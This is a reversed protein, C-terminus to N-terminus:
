LGLLQDLVRRSPRARRRLRLIEPLELTVRALGRSGAVPYRPLRMLEGVVVRAAADPPLCKLAFRLLNHRTSASRRSREADGTAAGVRHRLSAAPVFITEWGRLWARWCVDLDEWEMFFAEDFGGLELHRDRRVLMAAGNACVTSATQEAPAVSDLHLGPFHEHFLGGRRLTTRAHITREGSWDLQRADAAFATPADDLAAALREICERELAVDNNLFLVYEVTAAQAGRNYLFGLGENRLRLVRAGEREAASVSADTSGGDAVIVEVPPQTQGRLSTLCDPLLREGQYNGIVAAVATM